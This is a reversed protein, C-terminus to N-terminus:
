FPLHPALVVRLGFHVNWFNPAYGLRCATRVDVAVDYFSGGRVIRFIEDSAKEKERGDRPNYPYKYNPAEPKEGWLSATWEWVNGAMDCVGYPSDGQPSYSGVPTTTELKEEHSNCYKPNFENGWPFERGDIGRAAKEWEAETPARFVLGSRVEKGFESVLWEFYALGDVWALQVVPHKSFGDITTPSGRPHKWSAGKTKEWETGNWTWGFGEQEALTSYSTAKVFNDFQENTVPFRAILFDYPINFTFQPKEDEFAKQNDNKSGMLFDGRPVKVFEIGGIMWTRVKAPPPVFSVGLYEPPVYLDLESEGSETAAMNEVPKGIPKLSPPAAREKETDPVSLPIGLANARLELSRRLSTYAQERQEPPFYDVGQIPHLRLPRECNDLRVPLIFITGEPKELAMDLVFRLEKQVYGEKSVSGSSLTVIVADSHDLALEIEYDWDQGPLLKEEDLWPDIWGEAGLKKYLERVAPKDQSSHCLFVKLQKPIEPM